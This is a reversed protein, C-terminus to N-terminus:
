DGHSYSNTRGLQGHKGLREQQVIHVVQVGLHFGHAGVELALGVQFARPGAVVSREPTRQQIARFKERGLRRGSRPIRWRLRLWLIVSLTDSFGV